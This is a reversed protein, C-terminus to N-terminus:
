GSTVLDFECLFNWSYSCFGIVAFVAPQPSLQTHQTTPRQRPAHRGFHTFLYVRFRHTTVYFSTKLLLYLWIKHITRGVTSIWRWSDDTATDSAPPFLVSFHAREAPSLVSVSQMWVIWCFALCYIKVLDCNWTMCTSKYWHQECSSKNRRLLVIIFKFSFMAFRRISQHEFECFLSVFPSLHYLHWDSGDDNKQTHKYRSRGERNSVALNARVWRGLRSSTQGTGRFLGNRLWTIQASMSCDLFSLFLYDVRHETLRQLTLPLYVDVDSTATAPVTALIPFHVLLSVFLPVRLWDGSGLLVTIFLLVIQTDCMVVILGLLDHRFIIRVKESEKEEGGGEGKEDDASYMNMFSGYCIYCADIIKGWSLVLWEGRLSTSRSPRCWICRRWDVRTFDCSLIRKPPKPQDPIMCPFMLCQTLTTNHSHCICVNTSSPRLFCVKFKNAKKQIVNPATTSLCLLTTLHQLMSNEQYIVRLVCFYMCIFTAPEGLKSIFTVRLFFQSFLHAREEKTPRRFVSPHSVASLVRSVQAAIAHIITLLIQHRCWPHALIMAYEPLLGEPSEVTACVTTWLHEFWINLFYFIKAGM